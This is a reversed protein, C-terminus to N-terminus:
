YGELVTTQNLWVKYWVGDALACVYRVVHFTAACVEEPRYQFGIIDLLFTISIHDDTLHTQESKVTADCKM